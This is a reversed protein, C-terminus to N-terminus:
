RSIIEKNSKAIADLIGNVFSGAEAYSYKKALEIAEDISVKIPIEPFYLMEAIAVRLVNKDMLNVREFDWHELKTKILNDLKEQHELVRKVLSGAFETSIKDLNEKQANEQLPKEWPFETIEVQYLTRLAVERARRRSSM